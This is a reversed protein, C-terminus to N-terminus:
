IPGPIPGHTDEGSAPLHGAQALLARVIPAGPIGLFEGWDEWQGKYSQDPNIPMDKLAGSRVLGQYTNQYSLKASLVIRKAKSYSIFKKKPM